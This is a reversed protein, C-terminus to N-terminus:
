TDTTAIRALLDACRTSLDRLRRSWVTFARRDGRDLADDIRHLTAVMQVHLGTVEPYAM